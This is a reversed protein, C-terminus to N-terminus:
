NRHLMTFVLVSVTVLLVQFLSQQHTVAHATPQSTTNANINIVTANPEALNVVNTQLRTTPVGFSQSTANFTGNFLSVSFGAARTAPTASDPVTAVFVCQINSGNTSANTSSVSLTTLTLIDNDLLATKFQVKGSNNVCIYTTDNGGIKTDTSLSLAIYGQSQGSLEFEFTQNRQQKASFFFCSGKSSPDCKSPEAGCLKQLGCGTRSLPAVSPLLILGPAPTTANQGGAAPTTANQGGAAPTTANQGGAAPTTANHGGAAPTTANQGGAAPTTANRGGAAPTTANQGGAAPTTANQGGAAPTTANQGGAAPTTANQGGAAPTTANQGGAALTTTANNVSSAATTTANNVSATTMTATSNVSATTTNQAHTGMFGWSLTVLLVALVLRNDM